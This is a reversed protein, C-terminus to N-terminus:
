RSVDHEAFLLLVVSVIAFLAALRRWRIVILRCPLRSAAAIKAPLRPMGVM